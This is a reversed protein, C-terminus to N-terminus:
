HDNRPIVDTFTQFHGHKILGDCCQHHDNDEQEGYTQM